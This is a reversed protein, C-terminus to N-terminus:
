SGDIVALYKNHRLLGVPNPMHRMVKLRLTRSGVPYIVVDPPATSGDMLRDVELPVDTYVRFAGRKTLGSESLELAQCDSQSAPQICMLAELTEVGAPEDYGTADNFRPPMHREYRYLRHFSSRM